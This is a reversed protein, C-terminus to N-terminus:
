QEFLLDHLDNEELACAVAQDMSLALGAAWAAEWTALDIRARVLAINRDHESWRDLSDVSSAVRQRLTYAAGYLTAARETNGQRSEVDAFRALCQAIGGRDGLEERILISERLSGKAQAYDAQHLAAWAVTDLSIAIGWRDNMERRLMLSEEALAVARAYDGQRMAVEGLGSLAWAAAEKHGGARRCLALAEEFQETASAYKGQEL